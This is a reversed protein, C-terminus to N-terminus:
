EVPAPPFTPYQRDWSVKLRFIVWLNDPVEYPTDYTIRFSDRVYGGDGYFQIYDVTTGALYWANLEETQCSRNSQIDMRAEDTKFGENTSFRIQERNGSIADFWGMRYVLNGQDTGDSEVYKYPRTTGLTLYEGSYTAPQGFIPDASVRGGLLNRRMTVKVDLTEGNLMEIANEFVIRGFLADWESGTGHNGTSGWGAETITVDEVFTFRVTRWMEQALYGEDVADDHLTNTTGCGSDTTVYTSSTAYFTDLAVQETNWIICDVNTLTGLDDELTATTDDVVASIVSHGAEFQIARGVDEAVFLSGKSTVTTGSVSIKNELTRRNTPTTGTGIHFYEFVSELGQTASFLYDLGSDTIMNHQLDYEKKISGNANRVVPLVDVSFKQKSELIM